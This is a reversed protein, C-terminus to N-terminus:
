THPAASSCMWPRAEGPRRSRAWHSASAVVLVLALALLALTHGLSSLLTPLIPGSLGHTLSRGTPVGRLWRWYESLVPQGTLPSPFQWAFVCFSTFSFAILVGLALLVRRILFGLM